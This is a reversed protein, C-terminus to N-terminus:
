KCSYGKNKLKTMFQGESYKDGVSLTTVGPAKTNTQIKTVMGEGENYYVEINDLIIPVKKDLKIDVSVVNNDIKISYADGLYNYAKDFSSKLSKSFGVNQYKGTLTITKNYNISSIVGSNFTTTIKEEIIAGDNNHKISCTVYPQELSAVLYIIIAIIVIGIMVPWFLSKRNKM